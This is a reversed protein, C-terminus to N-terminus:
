PKVENLLKLIAECTPCASASVLGPPGAALEAATLDKWQIELPKGDPGMEYAGCAVAADHKQKAMEAREEDTWASTKVPGSKVEDDHDM